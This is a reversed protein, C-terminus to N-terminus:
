VDETLAGKALDRWDEPPKEDLIETLLREAEQQEALITRAQELAVRDEASVKENSM